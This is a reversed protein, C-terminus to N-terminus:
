CIKDMLEEPNYIEFNLNETSVLQGDKRIVIEISLSEGNIDNPIEIPFFAIPQDASNGEWLKDTFWTNIEASTRKLANAKTIEISYQGASSKMRCVVYNVRGSFMKNLEESEGTCLIEKDSSGFFDQIQKSNIDEESSPLYGSPSCYAGKSFYLVIIIIGFILTLILLSKLSLTRKKM